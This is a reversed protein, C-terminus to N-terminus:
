EIGRERGEKARERKGKGGDSSGKERERKGRGSKIKLNNLEAAALPKSM